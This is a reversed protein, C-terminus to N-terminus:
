DSASFFEAIAQALAPVTAEPPIIHCELGHEKATNATIEGICAVTVGRLLPGLDHTDFLQAFNSVTSGSTFSICDIGGGVLLGEVMRREASGPRITRYASVADARAGADELAQPLYDRAMAARPLLFNLGKLAEPGGLYGELAHFIGEAQFKAPVVDVHVAANSLRLATSDGVACVRVDDLDAVSYGLTSLRNLFFEVGNSSTFIIWDYGFLNEIAQDLEAYSEPDTIEITPCSIVRAGYGELLSIYDAAQAKARTVIVTRGDLPLAAGNVTPKTM